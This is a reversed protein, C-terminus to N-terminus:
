ATWLLIGKASLPKIVHHLWRWESDTYLDCGVVVIDFKSKSDLPALVTVITWGSFAEEIETTRNRVIILRPRSDVFGLM